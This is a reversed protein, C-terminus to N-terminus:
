IAQSLLKKQPQNFHSKPQYMSGVVKRYPFSNVSKGQVRTYESCLIWSLLQDCFQRPMTRQYPLKSSCFLRCGEGGNLTQTNTTKQLYSSCHCMIAHLPHPLFAKNEGKDTPLIDSLGRSCLTEILKTASQLQELHESLPRLHFIFPPFPPHPTPYLVRRLAGKTKKEM